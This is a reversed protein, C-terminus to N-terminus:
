PEILKLVTDRSFACFYIAADGLELATIRLSVSSKSKELNVSFRDGAENRKTGGSHQWSLFILSERHPQKYWYLYYSSTDTEYTCNLSVSESEVGVSFAPDVVAGVVLCERELVALHM